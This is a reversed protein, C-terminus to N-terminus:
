PCKWSGGPDKGPRPRPRAIASSGHTVPDDARSTKQQRFRLLRLLEDRMPASEPLWRTLSGPTENPDRPPVLSPRKEHRAPEALDQHVHAIEVLLLEPVDELLLLLRA